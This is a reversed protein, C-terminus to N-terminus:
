THRAYWPSRQVRERWATAEQRYDLRFAFMRWPPLGVGRANAHNGPLFLDHTRTLERWDVCEDCLERWWPRPWRPAIFTGCARQDRCLAVLRSLQGFDGNVWNNTPRWWQTFTDHGTAGPEYYLSDFPLNNQHNQASACRDHEHPGWLLDLRHFERPNLKWDCSDFNRSLWDALTNYIGRVHVARELVWGQQVFLLWVKKVLATLLPIRGGGNNLYSIACTNDLRPRIRSGRPIVPVLAQATNYFGRLEQLNIHEEAELVSWRGQANFTRVPTHDVPTRTHVLPNATWGGWGQIHSADSWVQIVRVGASRLIPCGNCLQLGELWFAVEGVAVPSLTVQANWGGPLEHRHMTDVVGYLGRTFLRAPALALSMSLIQGAVSAVKRVRVTKGQLDSLMQLDVLLKAIRAPPVTFTPVDVTNVEYGLFELEQTPELVSKDLNIVFGLAELDRRIRQMQQFCLAKSRAFICFDDLFHVLNIGDFRWRAAVNRLIMTFIYPAPSLGFFLQKWTYVKGEFEFGFYTRQASQLPIHHYGAALDFKCMWEGGVLLNQLDTLQEYAFPKRACCANVFRVNHILRFRNPGKKPAVGLPCIVKAIVDTGIVDRALLEKIQERTFVLEDHNRICSKRKHPAPEAVFDIPVGHEIWNAVFPSTLEKWAELRSQLRGGYVVCSPLLFPEAPEGFSVQDTYSDFSEFCNSNSNASATSANAFPISLSARSFTRTSPSVPLAYVYALDENVAASDTSEAVVLPLASGRTDRQSDSM